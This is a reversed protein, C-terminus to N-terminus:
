HSGEVSVLEGAAGGTLRERELADQLFVVAAAQDVVSRSERTTRGAARLDRQAAVTSLREDVMRVPRALVAALESAFARAQDAAPGEDGALRRPLGVLVELASWEAVLQGIRALDGEGRALTEVPVALVGDVDSRAIGIRVTGVDVALRVGRRM